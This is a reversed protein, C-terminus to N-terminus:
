LHGKVLVVIIKKFINKIKFAIYGAAYIIPKLNDNFTEFLSYDININEFNVKFEDVSSSKTSQECIDPIESFRKIMSHTRRRKKASFVQDLSINMQGCNSQRYRSFIRELCDPQFKYALVFKFNLKTIIHSIMSKILSIMSKCSFKLSYFTNKSLKGNAADIKEWADLTKIFKKM